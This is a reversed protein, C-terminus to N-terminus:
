IVIINIIYLLIISLITKIGNSNQTPIAEEVIASTMQKNNSSKIIDIPDLYPGYFRQYSSTISVSNRDAYVVQMVALTQPDKFQLAADQTFEAYVERPTEKQINPEFKSVQIIQTTFRYTQYVNRANRNQFIIYYFIQFYINKKFFLGSQINILPFIVTEKGPSQNPVEKVSSKVFQPVDTQKVNDLITNITDFNEVLNHSFILKTKTSQIWSNTVQRISDTEILLDPFSTERTSQVLPKPLIAPDEFKSETDVKGDILLVEGCLSTYITSCQYPNCRACPQGIQYVQQGLNAALNSDKNGDPLVGQFNCILLQTFGDDAYPTSTTSIGCGVRNFNSQMIVAYRNYSDDPVYSNVYQRAQQQAAKALEEDWQLVQM